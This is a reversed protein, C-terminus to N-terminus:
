HSLGAWTQLKRILWRKASGDVVGTHLEESLNETDGSVRLSERARSVRGQIEQELRQMEAEYEVATLGSTDLKINVKELWKRTTHPTRGILSTVRGLSWAGNVLAYLSAISALRLAM